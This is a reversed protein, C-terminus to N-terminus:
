EKNEWIISRSNSYPWKEQERQLESSQAATMQANKDSIEARKDKGSMEMHKLSRCLRTEAGPLRQVAGLLQPGRAPRQLRELTGFGQGSGPIHELVKLLKRIM